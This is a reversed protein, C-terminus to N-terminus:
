ARGEAALRDLTALANRLAVVEIEGLTSGEAECDLALRVQVAVGAATRAPTAGILGWLEFVRSYRPESDEDSADEPLADVRALEAAVEAAWGPHPDPAEALAASAAADALPAAVALGALLARRTPAERM